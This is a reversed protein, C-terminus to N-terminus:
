PRPGEVHRQHIGHYTNQRVRYPSSGGVNKYFYVWMFTFLGAMILVSLPIM